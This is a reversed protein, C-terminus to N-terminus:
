SETRTWTVDYYMTAQCAGTAGITISRTRTGAAYPVEVDGGRNAMRNDKKVGDWEALSLHAKFGSTSALNSWRHNRNTFNITTTANRQYMTGDWTNYGSSAQTPRAGDPGSVVIRYQFEGPM